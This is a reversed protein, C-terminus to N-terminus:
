FDRHKGAELDRIALWWYYNESHRNDKGFRKRAVLREAKERDGDLMAILKEKLKVDADGSIKLSVLRPRSSKATQKTRETWLIRALAVMVIATIFGLIFEM